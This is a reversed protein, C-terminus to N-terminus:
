KYVTRELNWHPRWSQTWFPLTLSSKEDCKLKTTKLNQTTMKM